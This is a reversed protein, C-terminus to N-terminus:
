LAQYYTLGSESLKSVDFLALYDITKFARDIAPPGCIKAGFSLYSRMLRPIKAEKAPLVSLPESLCMFGPQPIVVFEKSLQGNDRLQEFVSLGEATDQSTLSCCGFLYRKTNHSMYSGIGRWLLYLVKISRHNRHICARGIEVSEDLVRTPLSSLDFLGDSYFGAASDAIERTQLRYTGVIDGSKDERVYLHHCQPDFEDQDLGDIQSEKLGEGLEENFVNYRLRFIPLLEARSRAFHLSYPGSRLVQGPISQESVPYGATKASRKLSITSMADKIDTTILLSNKNRDLIDSTVNQSM